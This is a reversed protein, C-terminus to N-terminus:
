QGNEVHGKEPQGRRALLRERIGKMDGQHDEIARRVKEAQEKRLCLFQDVEDKHRLYYAIASYIDALALTSYTRLIMEPTAGDNFADVVMDLLVRTRGVRVDGQDDVRLQVTDAHLVFAMEVDEM